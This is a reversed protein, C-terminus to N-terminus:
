EAEPLNDIVKWRADYRGRRPGRPDLKVFVSSRRRLLAKPETGSRSLLHGLRSALSRVGMKGAYAELRSVDLSEIAEGFASSVVEMGGSLEPLYLSDVFAKEPEAIPFEVDGERALTYGFFRTAPLKVLRFAYADVTRRGSLRTNAVFVLRPVQETWTYYHLASWFSVYSPEVLRTGLFFPQGLILAGGFFVFVYRGNALRKLAGASVLRHLVRYAQAPALRFLRAFEDGDFADIRAEALRRSIYQTTLKKSMETLFLNCMVYKLDEPLSGFRSRIRHSVLPGRGSIM